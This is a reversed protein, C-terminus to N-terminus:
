SILWTPLLGPIKPSGVSKGVVRHRKESFLLFGPLFTMSPCKGYVVQRNEEFLLGCRYEFIRSEQSWWQELRRQTQPRWSLNCSRALSSSVSAGRQMFSTRGSYRVWTGALKLHQKHEERSKSSVFIDDVGFHVARNTWWLRSLPLLM